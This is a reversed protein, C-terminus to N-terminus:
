QEPEVAGLAARLAARTHKRYLLAFVGRSDRRLFSAWSDEPHADEYMAKAGAEVMAETVAVPQFAALKRRDQEERPANRTTPTYETDTM